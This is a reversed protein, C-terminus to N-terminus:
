ADELSTTTVGRPTVTLLHRDPVDVWTPEDDVPESAVLVGEELQRWSLSDGWTTALLETGNGALVNLRAARDRAAMQVVRAGLEQPADLLWAALVASDCTSEPMTSAPPVAQRDVVGNHTIAWAGRTFPATATEEIPMGASASRVSAVASTTSVHPAVSGFSAGADQWLPRTSRWRAPEAAAPSWWAVGWGDANVLGFRQRRPAFSQRVLGAEPRLVLAELTCPAGLWGLLRCM